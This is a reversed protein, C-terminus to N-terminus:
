TLRHDPSETPVGLTLLPSTMKYVETKPFLTFIGWFKSRLRRLNSSSSDNKKELGRFARSIRSVVQAGAHLLHKRADNVELGACAAGQDRCLVAGFLRPNRVIHSRYTNLFCGAFAIGSIRRAYGGCQGKRTERKWHVGDRFARADGRRSISDRYVQRRRGNARDRVGGERRVQWSSVESGWSRRHIAVSQLAVYKVGHPLCSCTRPFSGSFPSSVFKKERSVPSVRHGVHTPPRSTTCTRCSDTTHPGGLTYGCSKRLNGPVCIRVCVRSKAATAPAGRGSPRTKKKKGGLAENETKRLHKGLRQKTFCKRKPPAMPLAKPAAGTDVCHTGNSVLQRTPRNRSIGLVVGSHLTARRQTVFGFCRRLCARSM